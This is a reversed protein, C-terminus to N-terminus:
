RMTGRSRWNKDIVGVIIIIFAILRIVYVRYEGVESDASLGVHNVWHVAMVAFALAFYGFLRDRTENWYRLFFMAVTTSAMALMGWIFPRM